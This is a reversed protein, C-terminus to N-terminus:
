QPKTVPSLQVSVDSLDGQVQLPLEKDAYPVTKAPAAPNSGARGKGNEEPPADSADFVRVIYHGEAVYRFTFAGEDDISSRRVESRDDPYLLAVNAKSPAHGDVAVTVTGAVTHLGTLPILIDEGSATEGTSVKVPKADKRRMASGACIRTSSDEEALPLLTCVIYEGAPIGVISYRGNSDSVTQLSWDGYLRAGVPTWEGEEGKRYLAFHMGIAPSGDDYSVTGAIVASRQIPLTISSERHARVTVEVMLDKWQSVSALLGAEDDPAQKIKEFDLGLRPDLYGDLTAFAYYRGPKVAQMDIRGNLDTFGSENPGASDEAKEDKGPIAVLYVTAFRAPKDTDNCVVTILVSGKTPDPKKPQTHEECGCALLCASMITWLWRSRKM